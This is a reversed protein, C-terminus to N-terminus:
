RRRGRCEGDGDGEPARDDSGDAGAREALFDAAAFGQADHRDEVDDGGEAAGEGPVPRGQEAEAEDASEADAAGRDEAGDIEGLESGGLQASAEDAEELDVDDDADEEGVGGVVDDGLM